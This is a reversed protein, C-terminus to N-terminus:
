KTCLLKRGRTLLTVCRPVPIETRKKRRVWSQPSAGIYARKNYFLTSILVAAPSLVCIKLTLEKLERALKTTVLVAGASETMHIAGLKRFM